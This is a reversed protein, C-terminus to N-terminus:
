EKGKYFASTKHISLASLLRDNWSKSGARVNIQANIIMENLESPPTERVLKMIDIM